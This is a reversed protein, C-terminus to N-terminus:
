TLALFIEELGANPLGASQRLEDLTGSAVMRGAALLVFRDCIREADALQHISLVLTRGGDRVRQLLGAMTLSQRLDFGDFPEDLILLPHPSILAIALMVRKRFGKSLGEVRKCLASALGTDSVAQRVDEIAVGFVTAFFKLVDGVPQDGYPVVGDPLYFMMGRHRAPEEAGDIEIDGEDQPLLGAMCEMLTTKGSGNPGILGTISGQEVSISCGTLAQIGGFAKTVDTAQLLAM